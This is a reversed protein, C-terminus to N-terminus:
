PDANPQTLIANFKRVYSLFLYESLNGYNALEKFSFCLHRYKMTEIRTFLEREMKMYLAPHNLRGKVFSTLVKLLQNNSMGECYKNMLSLLKDILSRQKFFRTSFSCFIKILDTISVQMDQSSHDYDIHCGQNKNIMNEEWNEYSVIMKLLKEDMKQYLETSGINGPSLIDIINCLEHFTMTNIDRVIKKEALLAIGYGGNISNTIRMFYNAFKALGKTTVMNERDFMRIWGAIEYFNESTGVDMIAFANMMKDLMRVGAYNQKILEERLDFVETLLEDYFKPTGKNSIAFYHAMEILHEVSLSKIRFACQNELRDWIAEYERQRMRGKITPNM